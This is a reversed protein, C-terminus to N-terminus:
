GRGVGEFIGQSGFGEEGDGHGEQFLLLEMRATGLRRAGDKRNKEIALAPSWLHQM